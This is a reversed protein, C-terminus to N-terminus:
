VRSRSLSLRKPFLSDFRPKLLFQDQRFDEPIVLVRM